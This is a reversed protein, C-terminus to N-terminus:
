QRIRTKGKKITKRAKGKDGCGKTILKIMKIGSAIYIALLLMITTLRAMMAMTLMTAMQMMAMTKM